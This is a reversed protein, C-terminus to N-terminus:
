YRPLSPDVLAAYADIGGEVNTVDTFNNAALFECVSRSRAGHHCYVIIRSQRDLSNLHMQFSSLPALRSGPIHVIDYEWQERVDLLVIEKETDLIHKLEPTSLSNVM